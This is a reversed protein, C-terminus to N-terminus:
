QKDKSLSGIFATLKEGYVDWSFSTAKQRANESLQKLLEPSTILGKIKDAIVEHDRIPVVYGEKGEEIVADGGSNTTCIVPLGCALAELQVLAMGEDLSPFVFVSAKSYYDALEHHPVHPIHTFLHTYQQYIPRFPEELGGILTCRFEHKGQLEELAKFLYVLGKRVGVTGVFLITFGEKKVQKPQFMEVNAGYPIVRCKEEPIGYRTFSQAVHKSPCLLYDARRAEDLQREVIFAPTDHQFSLGLRGYEEALIENQFKNCSGCEEVIAVGGRKQVAKITELGSWAWTLLIDTQKTSRAAIRDYVLPLRYNLWNVIKSSSGLVRRLGYALLFVPPLF